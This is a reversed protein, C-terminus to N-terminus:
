AYRSAGKTVLSLKKKALDAILWDGSIGLFLSTVLPRNQNRGDALRQEQNEKLMGTQILIGSKQQGPGFRTADYKLPNNLKAPM